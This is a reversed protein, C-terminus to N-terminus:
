HSGGAAGDDEGWSDEGLCELVASGAIGRRELIGRLRELLRDCRRYLAKAELGLIQAIRPVKLGEQFRLRLVVRDEDGLEALSAALAARVSRVTASREGALLGRDAGARPEALEELATEGEVIRPFHPPLLEALRRLEERTEAFRASAHLREVAEERGVRERHLLTDLEVAAPGLRRAEASPRWTGWRQRRYDYLQHRIVTVLYTRLSCRGGYKRLVAYDDEILKLRSQSSFDEREEPSCHLRRCVLRITDEILRLNEVFLREASV